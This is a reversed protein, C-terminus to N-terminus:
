NRLGLSLLTIESLISLRGESAQLEVKVAFVEEVTRAAVSVERERERRHVAGEEM